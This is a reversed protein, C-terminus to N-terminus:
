FSLESTKNRVNAINYASRAPPVREKRMESATRPSPPRSKLWAPSRKM